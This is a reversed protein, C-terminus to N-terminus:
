GPRRPCGALAAHAPASGSLLGDLRGDARPSFAHPGGLLGALRTDAARRYVLGLAAIGLTGGVWRATFLIGAAQGAQSPPAARLGISTVQAWSVGLGMGILFLGALPVAIPVPAAGLALVGSGACAVALGGMAPFRRGFRREV